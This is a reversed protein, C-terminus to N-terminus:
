VNKIQCTKPHLYLPELRAPSSFMKKLYYGKAIELLYGAQPWVEEAYFDLRPFIRLAQKRIDKDYTLYFYDPHKKLFDELDNLSEKEEKKLVGGGKFTATYVLSKHADTVVAIKKKERFPYALAYFSGITIIPKALSLSFAKMLSYSIRLGMFSGPGSGVVFADFSSLELKYKKLYKELCFVVWSAGRSFFRQHNLILRDQWFIGLSLVQSSTDLALLNM